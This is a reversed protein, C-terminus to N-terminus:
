LLLSMIISINMSFTVRSGVKMLRHYIINHEQVGLSKPWKIKRLIDTRFFRPIASGYVPHNDRQSHFLWKDYAIAREIPTNRQILSKEFLTVLDYGEKECKNVCKEIIDSTLIQDSDLFLIYKGHSKEVGIKRAESLTDAFYTKAGYKKAIELTRDRSHSDIVIIEVNHYEQNIVSLLCEKLTQQSRYTPINISVLPKM